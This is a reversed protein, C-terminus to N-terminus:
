AVQLRDQTLSNSIFSASTIPLSTAQPSDPAPLYRTPLALNKWVCIPGVNAALVFEHACRSLCGFFLCLLRVRKSVPSIATVSGVAASEPQPNPDNFRSIQSFVRPKKTNTITVTFAQGSHASAWSQFCVQTESLTPSSSFRTPPFLFVFGGLLLFCTVVDLPHLKVRLM